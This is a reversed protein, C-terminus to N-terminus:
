GFFVVTKSILLLKLNAGVIGESLRKYCNSYDEETAVISGYNGVSGHLKFVKRGPIDHFVAFDEGTVVPTADCVREFFDDWNTTVIENIKPITSLERHFETASSYLEPFSRVYDLRQKIALLLDKRSRPSSCFITMLQSFSLDEEESIELRGSIEDYFSKPFVGRSETSIGAGTFFILQGNRYADIIESPFEFPRRLQCRECGPVRCDETNHQGDKDINFNNM